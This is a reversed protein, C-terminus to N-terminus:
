FIVNIGLNLRRVTPYATSNGMNAERDDPLKSWLILNDGNLYLRLSNIGMAKVWREKFTYAIQVTKLRLYSGDYLYLTSGSYFDMHSDWRPLPSDATMNTKTWYTGQHYVNDLNQAFSGLEVYRSCNSVGYFQVSMSIARWECGITTNFTNQPIESYGAPVKDKNDIVGDGNYDMINLNGPLKEGDNTNLQTSGYVQDWNNYYGKTVYSYNQGISKGAQKQYADLLLADDADLIKNVAHTMSFDGFVRLNKNLKKNLRVTLEYGQDTVKGLNAVPATAGYYSPISQSSGALLIDQRYDNFFDVSGSILGGFFSYDAGLNKKTVMEWQLNENGISKVYYQTYPSNGGTTSLTAPGVGGYGWQTLYLWRSYGSINDSGVEGWSARIKLMDLFKIEKMFKEETVMWGLAISPFFAFRNASSFKESGNYAGNVEAFYKSAYNYTARGVWDERLYPYDNGTTYNERSFLGMATIDNKGFKHAYNLQLQYYLKRYTSANVAGDTQPTWHTPLFDFQNTGLYNSNTVAGTVPNVYTQQASGNDYIGGVSVFTNDYSLTGKASLGNLVMSLDQKLTYDTNIQKTTTERVGNNALTNASNITAVTNPPYYGWSGNPYQPLYVDPPVSYISQWIRYEWPDQGFADQKVGYSGAINATLVTTKTLNIDLNSRVNFRQYGYGPDYSKGNTYSKMLDTEDTYDISTFYKVSSTGGSINVSANHDITSKKVLADQWNVNPYQAEQALSTQNRYKNLEQNSTYKAWAAPYLGLEREISMNRVSLADYSDDKDALESPSKVTSNFTVSIKSKGEQGRKTTILIVGNAGKVGYVATASADKLVSINEVSGIDVSSMDREIGDVLILPDTSNWTSAGRIYIKPAESGPSGTNAVTILGPLTGTLASGIDTVGGARELVEGKVQAIAGVVSAKKQQGYGVVVVDDLGVNNENLVVKVFSKGAINIEQPEYGIYTVVILHKDVPINLSFQGEADTVTGTTLGKVLLTAGILPQNKDDVVRGKIIHKNQAILSSSLVFLSLLLIYTLKLKKKSSILFEILLIKNINEM